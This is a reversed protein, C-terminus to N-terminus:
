LQDHLTQLFLRIESLERRVGVPLSAVEPEGPNKKYAKRAGATSFKQDKILDKLRLVVELDQETYTRKGAKNKQPKLEPFLSEWYRLVHPKVDALKSVEGISYYLKKM